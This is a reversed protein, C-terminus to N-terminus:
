VLELRIDGIGAKIQIHLTVKSKGLADNVYSNGEKKFDRAQISGIGKEAEIRIGATNPLRVTVKGIGGEIVAKMDQKWDGILDITSEGVGTQINLDTLSLSGLELESKGVGLEVRLNLPVKDNFSLNWENKARGGTPAGVGEPQRITIKGKESEVEYKVLPKWRAVNYLFEGELMKKAGGSLRLEGVGIQLVAQVSKASGLDISQPDIQMEGVHEEVCAVALILLLLLTGWQWAKKLNSNM